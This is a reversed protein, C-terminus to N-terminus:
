YMYKVCTYIIIDLSEIILIIVTSLFDIVFALITVFDNICHFSCLYKINVLRENPHSKNLIEIFMKVFTELIFYFIICFEFKCCVLEYLSEFNVQFM